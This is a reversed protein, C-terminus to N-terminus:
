FNFEVGLSVKHVKPVDRSAILVQPVDWAFRVIPSFGRKIKTKGFDYFVMLTVYESTWSSRQRVDKLNVPISRDNRADTWYDPEHHTLTYFVRVGLGDRLNELSFYPNFVVTYGPDILARGVVLGLFQPEKNVPMRWEQIKSFRKSLRLWLGVKWDEKVELEAEGMVYGGWHRNGGFPVSSTYWINARDGIPALLGFRIGADIRRMKLYYYLTKSFRAYFDFDGLGSHHKRDGLLGISSSMCRRIEELENKDSDTLVLNTEKGIFFEFRSQVRMILGYFGLSFWSTIQQQYSPVIGQAQIKGEMIWPIEGLQWEAPLPNPRGAAVFSRAWEVQDLTGQLVPIGIENGNTGFATKSTSAFIDFAAHSPRCDVTLYPREFPPFYRNDFFSAYANYSILLTIIITITSRRQIAM